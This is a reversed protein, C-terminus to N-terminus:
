VGARRKKPTSRGSATGTIAAPRRTAATLLTLMIEIAESMPTLWSPSRSTSPKLRSMAPSSNAPTRAEIRRAIAKSTSMRSASCVSVGHRRTCCPPPVHDAVDQLPQEAALFPGAAGADEGPQDLVDPVRQEHDHEGREDRDGGPQPDPVGAPTPPQAGHGVGEAGDGGGPRGERGGEQ